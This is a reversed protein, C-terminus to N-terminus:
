MCIFINWFLSECLCVLVCVSESADISVSIENEGPPSSDKAQSGAKAQNEQFINWEAPSLQVNYSGDASAVPAPSLNIGAFGNSLQIMKWLPAPIHLM